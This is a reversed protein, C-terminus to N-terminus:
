NWNLFWYLPEGRKMAGYYNMFGMIPVFPAIILWHSQKIVLRETTMYVIVLCVTPFSHVLYAHLLPWFDDKMAEINKAHLMTWYVSKGLICLMATIEFLIHTCALRASSIGTKSSSSASARSSNSLALVVCVLTLQMIWSTM